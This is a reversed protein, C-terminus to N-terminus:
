DGTAHSAETGNRELTEEAESELSRLRFGLNWAYFLGLLTVPIFGAIHYGVALSLAPGAAVGFVDHLAVMVGAQLTGIFGPGAPVSVFMSVACQTFVAAAFGRDIGFALFAVRFAAAMWLWVVLSWLFAAVLASPRRILGLGSSFLDLGAILKSGAHGPMRAAVARRLRLTWAPRLVLVGIFALAVSVVVVSGWVAIEISRGMVTVDAPFAPALVAVLLLVLLAVADLVRELVVTGLAGSMSVPALRSLAYPRAIEGLRAPVINTVMFGINLAKWRANLTTTGGLPELLLRWRIARVLGGGTSIAGALALLPFDAAALQRGIAGLDEGRFVWWLCLASVAVGAVAKWHSRM